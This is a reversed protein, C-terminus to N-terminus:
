DSPQQAESISAFVEIVEFRECVLKMEPDFGGNREFYAQHDRRWGTLDENEGESLAFTEGVENFQKIEIDTTRIAVAPQGEWDLAIDIRGVSPLAEDGSEYVSLAECTGTKKGNIVLSTLWDCLKKNDGFTFTEADPYKSKIASLEM